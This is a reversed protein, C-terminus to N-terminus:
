AGQFCYCGLVGMGERGVLPWGGLVVQGGADGSSLSRDQEWRSRLRHQGGGGGGVEMM